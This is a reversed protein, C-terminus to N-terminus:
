DYLASFPDFNKDDNWFYEIRKSIDLSKEKEMIDEIFGLSMDIGASVGSSTYINGDRVWRAEKVWVVDKGQETVWKFARKNTTANKGNLKGTKALLAAGTCVSIYKSSTSMDKILSILNNDHAKERTRSGGPILLVNDLEDDKEYVKTDVSIGQTSSILGGNLSVLELKFVETLSGFIEVPGFVDLTEFDNFLVINIRYRM